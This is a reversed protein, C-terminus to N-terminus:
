SYQVMDKMEFATKQEPYIIVFSINEFYKSLKKPLTDFVNHYSVTNKRAKVVVFLDNEGIERALILFDNWDDFAKFTAQVNLKSKMLLEKISEITKSEAYFVLKAQIQKSMTKLTAIWHQFGSELEAMPPVAVNISSFTSCQHMIKTVLIMTETKELLRSLVTGFFMQTTSSEGSWGMVTKTIALEKIARAIGHAVNLDVRTTLRVINESASAHDVAKQLMKNQQIIKQSANEDDNVVSLPYIPEKSLPDRIFIAFDVLQEMTSPNALPVLIRDPTSNTNSVIESEQLAVKKGAAQTIISSALSTLLILLVTGNFIDSDVLELNYGVLVVAITAAARATSLGFILNRESSNYNFILQMSLAALFKSVLAIAFFAMTFFIVFWGGTLGKIDVMMGVGILFFPIFVTNGIFTIRNMLASSHPVYPNLALGALFAGLIPEIGAIEALVASVFAVTLLYIYQISGENEVNKFFWRTLRPVGWLIVFTFASISLTLKAWFAFDAEGSVSASIFALMILVATDVIITGGFTVTAARSKAIGLKSVVPYSILTHTAIM